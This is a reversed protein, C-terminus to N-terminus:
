SINDPLKLELRLGRHSYSHQSATHENCTIDRAKQLWVPSSFEKILSRNWNGTRSSNSQLSAQLRLDSEAAVVTALHSVEVVFSFQVLMWWLLIYETTFPHHTKKGRRYSHSFNKLASPRSFPPLLSNIRWCSCSLKQYATANLKHNVAWWKSSHCVSFAGSGEWVALPSLGTHGM